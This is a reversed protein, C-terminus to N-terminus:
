LQKGQQFLRLNHLQAEQWLRQHQTQQLYALHQLGAQYYTTQQAAM